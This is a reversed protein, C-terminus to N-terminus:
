GGGGKIGNLVRPIALTKGDCATGAGTITANVYEGGSTGKIVAKRDAGGVEEANMEFSREKDASAPMVTGKLRWMRSTHNVAVFGELDNGIVTIHWDLGPCTGTLPPICHM